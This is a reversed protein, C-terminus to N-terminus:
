SKTKEAILYPLNLPLFTLKFIMRHTEALNAFYCLMISAGWKFDNRSMVYLLEEPGQM